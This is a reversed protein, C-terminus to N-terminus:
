PHEQEVGSSHSEDNTLARADLQKWSGGSDTSKYTTNAQMLM